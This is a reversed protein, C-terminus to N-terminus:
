SRGRPVLEWLVARQRSYQWPIDPERLWGVAQGRQNVHTAAGTATDFDALDEGLAVPLRNLWVTPHFRGDARAASGAVLGADTVAYAASGGPALGPLRVSGRRGSLVGRNTGDPMERNAIVYGTGTAARAAAGQVDAVRLAGDEWVVERTVGAGDVAQGWVVGNEMLMTATTQWDAPAPLETVVGDQQVFARRRGDPTVGTAAIQGADNLGGQAAVTTPGGGLDAVDTLVGDQWLAARPPAIEGDRWDALVRGHNDLDVGSVWQGARALEVVRGDPHWLVPMYPVVVGFVWAVAVGADNVRVPTSDPLYTLEGETWRFGTQRGTERSWTRGVVIGSESIDLPESTTGPLGLDVPRLLRQRAVEGLSRLDPLAAVDAGSAPAVSAGSVTLAGTLLLITSTTRVRRVGRPRSWGRRDGGGRAERVASREGTGDM